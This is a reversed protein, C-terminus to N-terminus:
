QTCHFSAAVLVQSSLAFGFAFWLLISLAFFACNIWTFTKTVVALKANALL